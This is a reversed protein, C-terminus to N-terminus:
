PMNQHFGSKLEGAAPPSIPQTQFEGCWQVDLTIPFDVTINNGAVIIGPSERM